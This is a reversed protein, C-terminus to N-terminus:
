YCTEVLNTRLVCGEWINQMEGSNGIEEQEYLNNGDESAIIYHTTFIDSSYNYNNFTLKNQYNEIIELIVGNENEIEFYTTVCDFQNFEVQPTYEFRAPNNFFTYRIGCCQNEWVVGDYRELFTEEMLDSNSSDDSSCAFILLASLLLLKKM